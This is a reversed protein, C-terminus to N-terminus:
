PAARNIWGGVRALKERFLAGHGVSMMQQRCLWAHTMEHKLTNILRTRHVKRYYTKKVFIFPFKNGDCHTYANGTEINTGSKLIPDDKLYIPVSPMQDFLPLLGDAEAQLNADHDVKDFRSDSSVAPQAIPHILVEPLSKETPPPPLYVRIIFLGAGFILLGILLRIKLSSM